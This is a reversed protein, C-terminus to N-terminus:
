QNLKKLFYKIMLPKSDIHDIVFYKKILTEFEKNTPLNYRPRKLYNELKVM